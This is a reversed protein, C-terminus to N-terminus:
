SKISDIANELLMNFEAPKELMPFHGTEEIYYLQYNKIHKRNEEPATPWLRANISIVPITIDKFIDAAEGNVYQGLYNRFASLAIEKPASSMDEKVWNVLYQDTGKPFMPTVFNQVASKFDAELPETMKDIVSQPTREAVNQLTDVGVIGVVQGPMLRATEAIVGGGMSHGILIARDIREKDIIAKVDNAFSLMSYESRGSSSHGHGALDVTIVQYEKSFVPIQKQWYRGDCNWGHIFILTTKGKGTVDYAIRESDFSLAVDHRISIENSACGALLLFSIIILLIKKKM